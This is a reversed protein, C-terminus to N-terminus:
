KKLMEFTFPVNLTKPLNEFDSDFVDFDHTELMNDVVRGLGKRVRLNEVSNNILYQNVRKKESQFYNLVNRQKEIVRREKITNLKEAEIKEIEALIRDKERLLELYHHDQKLKNEISYIKEDIDELKGDIESTLADMKSITEDFILDNSTKVNMLKGIFDKHSILLLNLDVDFLNLKNLKEIVEEKFSVNKLISSIVDKFEEYTLVRSKAILPKEYDYHYIESTVFRLIHFRIEGSNNIDDREIRISLRSNGFNYTRILECKVVDESKNWDEHSVVRYHFLTSLKKFQERLRYTIKNRKDNM